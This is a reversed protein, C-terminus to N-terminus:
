MQKMWNNKNFKVDVVLEEVKTAHKHFKQPKDAATALELQTTHKM